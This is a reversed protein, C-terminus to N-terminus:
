VKKKEKLRNKKNSILQQRSKNKWGNEKFIKKKDNRMKWKVNKIM